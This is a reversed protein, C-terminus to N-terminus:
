RFHEYGHGEIIMKKGNKLIYSNGRTVRGIVTFDAGRKNILHASMEYVRRPITFLLQYDGGFNLALEEIPINYRRNMRRAMGHLPLKSYEIEFGNGSAEALHFLASYVGDSLDIASTAGIRSLLLGENIRPEVDLLTRAGKMSGTKKWLYYGAANRGLSGTVCVLDGPRSGSRKLMRGKEAIGIVIGTMAMEKSQKLDGGAMKVNYRDLCRKIGLQVKSLYGSTTSKPLMLSDMFYLPRGGMAAIDSLNVAAFFSGVLMPDSGKPIHGGATISDSTVLISSGGADFYFSDDDPWTYPYLRRIMRIARHEGLLGLVTGGKDM